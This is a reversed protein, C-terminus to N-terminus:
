RALYTRRNIRIIEKYLDPLGEIFETSHSGQGRRSVGVRREDPEVFYRSSVYSALLKFEGPVVAFGASYIVHINQFGRTWRAPFPSNTGPIVTPGPLRALYGRVPDVTADASISYGAAVVLNMGNETVVPLPSTAVPAMRLPLFPRGNGDYVEDYSQLDVDLSLADRVFNSAATVCLKMLDEQDAVKKAGLGLYGKFEELTILDAV